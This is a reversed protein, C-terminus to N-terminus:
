LDYYENNDVIENHKDYYGQDDDGYEPNEDVTEKEDVNRKKKRIVVVVVVAISLVIAIGSVVLVITSGTTLGSEENKWKEKCEEPKDNKCFCKVSRIANNASAKLRTRNPTESCM